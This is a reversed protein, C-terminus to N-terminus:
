PAIYGVDGPCFTKVWMRSYNNRLYSTWGGGPPTDDRTEGTKTTYWKYCM